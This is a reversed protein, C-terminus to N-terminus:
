LTQGKDSRCKLSVCLKGNRGFRGNRGFKGNQGFKGNLSFKGNRQGEAM